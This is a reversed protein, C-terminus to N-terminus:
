FIKIMAQPIVTRITSKKVIRLERCRRASRLLYDCLFMRLFNILAIWVITPDRRAKGALLMNIIIRVGM